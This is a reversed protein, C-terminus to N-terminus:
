DRERGRLATAVQTRVAHFGVTTAAAQVALPVM